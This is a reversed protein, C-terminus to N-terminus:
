IMVLNADKNAQASEVVVLNNRRNVNVVVERFQPTSPYKIM